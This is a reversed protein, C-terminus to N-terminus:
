FMRSHLVHGSGGFCIVTNSIDNKRSIATYVARWFYGMCDRAIYSM